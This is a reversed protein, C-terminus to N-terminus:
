KLKIKRYGNMGFKGDVYVVTLGHYEAKQMMLGQNLWRQGKADTVVWGIDVARHTVLGNRTLTRWGNSLYVIKVGKHAPDQRDVVSRAMKQIDASVQYTQPMPVPTMDNENIAYQAKRLKSKAENYLNKFQSARSDNAWKPHWQLIEEYSIQLERYITLAADMNGEEYANNAENMLYNTSNYAVELDVEKVIHRAIERTLVNRKIRQTEPETLTHQGESNTVSIDSGADLKLKLKGSYEFNTLVYAKVMECFATTSNPDAFYDALFANIVLETNPVAKGNGLTTVDDFTCGPKNDAGNIMTSYKEYQENLFDLTKKSGDLYLGTGLYNYYPQYPFNEKDMNEYAGRINAPSKKYNNEVATESAKSDAQKAAASPEYTTFPSYNMKNLLHSSSKKATGNAANAGNSSSTVDNVSQQAANSVNKKANDVTGGVEKKVTETVRSKVKNLLGGLQANAGTATLLLVASTIIIKKM